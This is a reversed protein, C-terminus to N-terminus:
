KASPATTAPKDADPTKPEIEFTVNANANVTPDSGPRGAFGQMANADNFNGGINLRILRCNGNLVSALLDCEHNIIEYLAASTDTMAKTMDAPASAPPAPLALQFTMTVTRPKGSSILPRAGNNIVVVNNQAMAPVVLVMCALATAIVIKM